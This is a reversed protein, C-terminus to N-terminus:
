RKVALIADIMSNGQADCGYSRVLRVTADNDPPLIPIVADIRGPRVFAPHIARKDNTTLVVMIEHKKSDVGDLTNIYTAM